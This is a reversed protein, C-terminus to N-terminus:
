ICKELIDIINDVDNMADHKIREACILSARDCRADFGKTILMSELDLLPFPSFKEREAKNAMVCKSFLGTEVPYPVDCLVLYEDCYKMYFQWFANLLDKECEYFNEANCLYPFVNELVWQTEISELDVKVAGYFHDIIRKGDIVKVAISLVKGYIGDTEADTVFFKGTM